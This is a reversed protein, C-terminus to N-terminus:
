REDGGERKGACPKNASDHANVVSHVDACPETSTPKSLSSSVVLDDILSPVDIESLDAGLVAEIIARQEPSAAEWLDAVRIRELLRNMEESV